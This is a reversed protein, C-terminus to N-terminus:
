ALPAKGDFVSRDKAAKGRATMVLAARPSSIARLTPNVSPALKPDRYSLRISCLNGLGPTLPEIGKRSALLILRKSDFLVPRADWLTAEALARCAGFLVAASDRPPRDARPLAPCSGACRRLALAMPARSRRCVSADMEPSRRNNASGKQPSVPPGRRGRRPRPSLRKRSCPLLTLGLAVAPASTIALGIRLRM